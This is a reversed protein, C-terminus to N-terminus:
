ANHKGGRSYYSAGRTIDYRNDQHEGPNNEEPKRETAAKCLASINRITPASSLDLIRASASELRAAGYRNTLKTQTNRGLVLM